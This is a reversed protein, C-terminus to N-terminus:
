QTTVKIFKIGELNNLKLVYTGSPIESMTLTETYHGRSFTKNTFFTKIFRGQM